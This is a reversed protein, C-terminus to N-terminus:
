VMVHEDVRYSKEGGEGGESGPDSSLQLTYIYIKRKMGGRDDAVV